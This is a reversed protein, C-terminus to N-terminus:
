ISTQKCLTGILYQNQKCACARPTRRVVHAAPHPLPFRPKYGSETWQFFLNFRTHTFMADLLAQKLVAHSHGHVLRSRICHRYSGEGTAGQSSFLTCQVAHSLATVQSGLRSINYCCVVTVAGFREKITVMNRYHVILLSPLWQSRGVNYASTVVM